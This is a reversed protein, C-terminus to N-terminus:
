DQASACCFTGAMASAMCVVAALRAACTYMCTRLVRHARPLPAAVCQLSIQEMWSFPNATGFMKDGGLSGLLRDAVFEIYEKMYDANMGILNCPLSACIFMREIEVAEAIIENLVEKDLQKDLLRCPV